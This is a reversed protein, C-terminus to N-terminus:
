ELAIQECARRQGVFYVKVSHIAFCAPSSSRIGKEPGRCTAAVNYIAGADMIDKTLGSEMM